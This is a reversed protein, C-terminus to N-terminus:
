TVYLFDTTLFSDAILPATQIKCNWVKLHDDIFVSVKDWSLEVWCLNTAELTVCIYGTILM